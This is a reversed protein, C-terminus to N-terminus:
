GKYLRLDYTQDAFRILILPFILSLRRQILCNSCSIAMKLIGFDRSEEGHNFYRTEPLAQNMSQIEVSWNM